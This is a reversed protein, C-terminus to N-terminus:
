SLDIGYIFLGLRDALTVAEERDIVLGAGAELAIGALGAKAAAQVPDPGITPRALRTDQIPKAVKVLVGRRADPTGRLEVPLASIRGLMADTGEAAELALVLGECVVAGQAIDLAGIARAAEVGKAIDALATADPAHRGYPGATSELQGLIDAPSLIEFGQEQAFDRVTDLLAGDGKAAAKAIRPMLMLGKSDLKLSKLDPRAVKGAFVLHSADGILGLAKKIEGLGIWGAIDPGLQDAEGFGDLGILVIPVNAAKAAQAIRAPLSGGGALIALKRIPAM